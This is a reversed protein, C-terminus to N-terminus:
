PAVRPTYGKRILRDYYAQAAALNDFRRTKVVSVAHDPPWWRVEFRGRGAPYWLRYGPTTWWDFLEVQGGAVHPDAMDWVVRPGGLGNRWRRWDWVVITRSM